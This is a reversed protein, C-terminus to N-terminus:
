KKIRKARLHLGWGLSFAGESIKHDDLSYALMRTGEGACIMWNFCDTAHLYEEGSVHEVEFYVEDQNKYENRVVKIQKHYIDGEDSILYPLEYASKIAEPHHELYVLSSLVHHLPGRHKVYKGDDYNIYDEDIVEKYTQKLDQDTINKKLSDIHSYTSDTYYYYWNNTKYIKNFPGVTFAHYIIEIVDNELENETLEVSACHVGLLTVKFFLTDSAFVIGTLLVFILISVIKKM